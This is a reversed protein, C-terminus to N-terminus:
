GQGRERRAQRDNTREGVVEIIGLGAETVDYGWLRMMETRIDPCPPLVPPGELEVLEALLKSNRAKNARCLKIGRGRLPRNGHRLEPCAAMAETTLELITVAAKREGMYWLGLYGKMRGPRGMLCGPCVTAPNFHPQTQYQGARSPNPVYHTLVTMLEDSLIVGQIPAFPKVTLVRVFPAKPVVDAGNGWCVQRKAGM